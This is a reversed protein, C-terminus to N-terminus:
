RDLSLITTNAMRLNSDLQRAIAQLLAFAAEPAERELRAIGVGDLALCTLATSARVDASRARGSVVAMEGFITGPTLTTIRVAGSGASRSLTIDAAGSLLVFLGDAPDGAKIVLEGQVFLQERMYTLLRVREQEPVGLEALVAIPDAAGHAEGSGALIGEEIKQLASEMSDFCCGPKMNALLGLMDLDDHAAAGPRLGGLLVRAGPVGAALRVLKRGGSLDVRAIRGLDLLIWEAGCAAANEVHSAVAEASGFFLAGQLEVVEIRAGAAMLVAEVRAPRRTRSRGGPNRWSRRIIGRSMSAAFAVVALLVGIGVAAPLSWLLAALAVIATVAADAARHRAGPGRLGRLTDVRVLSWATGLVVAALATQPVSAIVPGLAALALLIVGARVLAAVRTRGGAEFMVASSSTLASVPLGAAVGSLLHAAILANLDRDLKARRETLERVASANGLTDLLSLVAATAGAVALAPLLAPALVAPAAQWAAAIDHVHLSLTPPVGLLPGLLGAFGAARLM